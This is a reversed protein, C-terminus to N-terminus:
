EQTFTFQTADNSSQGNEVHDDQVGVQNVMSTKGEPKFGLPFGHLKFCKEMTCGLRGCHSCIPRDKGKSNKGGFFVPNSNSGKVALATSEVHANSNGVNRQREEQILLSYVKNISPLPEMLLIQGKIQSYSDNLGMLFQMVSDQFHLNEIRKSLNCTCKGCNCTPNPRFIKLQDWYVKLQTFFTTISSDGQNISAIDMQLQFIRPGNGQSHTDRLDNWIELTTDRYTISIRIQPSVAKNLWSGVMNDCRIWTDIAAPTKILPSSLTITGDVFGFKNKAILAKKMSRAWTHYNEGTLVEFVLMAGPSKAHHLYLPNSMDEVLAPDQESSTSLSSNSTSLM